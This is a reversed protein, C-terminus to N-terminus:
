SLEERSAGRLGLEREHLFRLEPIRRFFSECIGRGEESDRLSPVRQLPVTRRQTPDFVFGYPAAPTPARGGLLKVIETATMAAALLCASGVAPGKGHLLDVRSFDVDETLGFGLGAAFAMLQETRTMGDRLGFHEDFSAGAAPFVLVSAGFGVPAALLVTVQRGRCNAMLMRRAEINFFDIADVALDAGDLFGAVNEPTVGDPFLRLHVEPNIQRALQALTKVKTRGVTEVSAGWQRNLNALEFRDPDALHFAQIGLRLLVQIHAGGAGGLGALAMTTQRLRFQESDRLVGLNRGFAAAYDFRVVM